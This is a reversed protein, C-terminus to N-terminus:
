IKRWKIILTVFPSGDHILDIHMLKVLSRSGTPDLAGFNGDADFVKPFKSIM